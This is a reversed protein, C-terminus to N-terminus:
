RLIEPEKWIPVWFHPNKNWFITEVMLHGQFNTQLDLNHKMKRFPNICKDKWIERDKKSSM